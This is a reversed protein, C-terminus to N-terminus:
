TIAFMRLLYLVVGVTFATWSFGVVFVFLCIAHVLFFPVTRAWDVRRSNEVPADLANEQSSFTRNNFYRSLEQSFRVIASLPPTSLAALQPSNLAEDPPSMSRQLENM